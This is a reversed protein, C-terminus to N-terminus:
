NVLVAGDCRVGTVWVDAQGLGVGLTQLVSNLLTDISGTAGGIIGAVLAGIGPIPLGLPGLQVGLQLDGLLSSTLSSTFSTTNVTKKTQAQIDAYSFTVSTPSTNAMTAHARGTVQIAGLNVINVAPPNPATSFNTMMASTVDGIWADVIGPSVGLTVTSTSVNPYGCSIANLTATGAAIEVYVPLNVVSVAGSGVLQIKLLVRTQATHVSAGLSGVTIWSTGVPREGVTAQLTVGAIGPLSLNVNAAIQNTGNALAAMASLLDLASVSAGVKPKQGVTLNSYPGVSILSKPTIRTTLSSIASSLSSLAAIAGSNGAAATQLAAVIDTVKLNSNLLTDYSVGTLNVRTALAGLFDFADIKASLLANYDMASLSLTTGLMGGLLSNLLGGNLSVLRSGIAFTALRTTSAIATAKLNWQSDGTLVKGFYLPTMTQMTVRVANAPTAAAVFRQQPTLSANATYVGPEVAVLSEPPYNNKAVTAAAARSANSLDSAAVLAALDTASQTRRKDAFIAGVDVGLAACAIVLLLSAAGMIAINGRDDAAFRRLLNHM